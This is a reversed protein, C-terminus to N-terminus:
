LITQSRKRAWVVWHARTRTNEPTLPIEKKHIVSILEFGSLLRMVESQDVYYHPIGEEIGSAPAYTFPALERGQGYESDESSKLTIFLLGDDGLSNDIRDLLQEIDRLTAHYVVNYAIVADFASAQFPWDLMDIQYLSANTHSDALRARTHEIASPSVDSATVMFGQEALFVTHRGAGCGLDYVRRRKERRLQRVFAFLDDAVETWREPMADLARDWDWGPSHNM